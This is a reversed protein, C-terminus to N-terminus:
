SESRKVSICKSSITFKSKQKRISRCGYFACQQCSRQKGVFFVLTMLRETTKMCGLLLFVQQQIMHHMPHRLSNTGDSDIGNQLAGPGPGQAPPKSNGLNDSISWPGGILEDPLNNELDYMDMNSLVDIYYSCLSTLTIYVFSTSKFSYSFTDKHILLM